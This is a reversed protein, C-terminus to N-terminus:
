YTPRATLRRMQLVYQALENVLTWYSESAASVEVGNQNYGWWNGGSDQWPYNSHMTDQTSVSQDYNSGDNASLSLMSGPTANKVFVHVWGGPGIAHYYLGPNAFDLKTNQYVDALFSAGGTTTVLTSVTYSPLNNSPQYIEVM